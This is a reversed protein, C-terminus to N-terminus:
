VGEKIAPNVAIRGHIRNGRTRSIIKVRKYYLDKSSTINNAYWEDQAALDVLWKVGEIGTKSQKLLLYWYQRSQKRSCDEAPLNFKELFYATIFNIDTNGFEEIGNPITEKTITEKPKEKTDVQKPLKKNGTQTLGSVQKPLESVQKPLWTKYHKNFAYEKGIKTLINRGVLRKLIKSIHPDRMGTLDRFQSFSIWDSKKHWCYTKRWVAWLIQSENPALHTKALAEVIDNAIDLHGNEVQPSQM